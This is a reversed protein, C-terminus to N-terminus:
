PKYEWPMSTSGDPELGFESLQRWASLHQLHRAFQLLADPSGGDACERAIREAARRDGGSWRKRALRSLPKFSGLDAAQLALHDADDESQSSLLAVLGDPHGGAAAALALRRAEDRDGQEVLLTILAALARTSGAVMVLDKLDGTSFPRRKGKRLLAIGSLVALDGADAAIRALREAERYRGAAEQWRALTRLAERRDTGEVLSLVREAGDYDGKDCRLDILTTAAVTGGALVALRVTQEAEAPNGRSECRKIWDRQALQDGAHAASRLLEEAHARGAAERTRGLEGLISPHGADAAQRALRIASDHEGTRERRQTLENLIRTCGANAALHALRESTETDGSEEHLLALEELAESDGAAVAGKLFTIAKDHDGKRHHVRARIRLVSPHDNGAVHRLTAEAEDHRNAREHTHALEVLAPINGAAAAGRVFRDADAIHGRSRRVRAVEVLADSHGMEVALHGLREATGHDGASERLQALRSVSTADNTSAAREVLIREPMPRNAGARMRELAILAPGYGAASSRDLLDAALRFRLRNRASDALAALDAPSDSYRMTADWFGAPPMIRNRSRRGYQDIYDALRYVRPHSDPSPILLRGKAVHAATLETLADDFWGSDLLHERREREDLNALAAHELLLAPLWESHGLRRADMAAHIVACAPTTLWIYRDVLDPAGALEQVVAGDEARQVAERLRHDSSSRAATLEDGGFRDPVRLTHGRILARASDHRDISQQPRRMIEHRYAPWLTGLVLIPARGRDVLLRRLGDAIARALDPSPDLLYRQAENLWVVTKPGVLPLEALFQEPALPNLSPWLRWGAKALSATAPGDIPRHLAEFCARTKGSTSDSVLVVIGSRAEPGGAARAAARLEVDHAREIYATLTQQGGRPEVAPHVGLEDATMGSIPAGVASPMESTPPLHYHIGGSITGATVVSGSVTEASVANRVTSAPSPAGDDRRPDPAADLETM